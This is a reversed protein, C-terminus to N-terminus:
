WFCFNRARRAQVMREFRSNSRAANADISTGVWLKRNDPTFGFVGGFTEDPGWQILERWPSNVENRVRIITSGDATMVQAARVQLDNDANWAAVDGPNETDITLEGTLECGAVSASIENLTLVGGQFKVPAGIDDVQIALTVIGTDIRPDNM